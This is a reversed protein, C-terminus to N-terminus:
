TLRLDGLDKKILAKATRVADYVAQVSVGLLGAVARATPEKKPQWKAKVITRVRAPLREIAGHYANEQEAVILSEEPTPLPSATYDWGYALEDIRNLPALKRRESDLFDSFRSSAFTNLYRMPEEAWEKAVFRDSEVYCLFRMTFDSVLDEVIFDQGRDSWWSAFRRIYATASVQGFALLQAFLKERNSDTPFQIFTRLSDSVSSRDYSAM